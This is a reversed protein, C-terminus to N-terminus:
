ILVSLFKVTIDGFSANSFVGYKATNQLAIDQLINITEQDVGVNLTTKKIRRPYPRYIM